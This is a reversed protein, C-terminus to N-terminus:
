RDVQLDNRVSFAGPVQALVYALNRDLQNGVSGALTVHGGEVIIHIPPQAMQAYQWFASHTYIARAIRLRLEADYPSLPLVKIDNVLTRIGDIKGVRKGIEDRKIPATVRGTLTVVRNEVSIRVDDFIGFPGYRQIADVVREALDADTVEARALAPAALNAMFVGVGLVWLLRTKNAKTASM